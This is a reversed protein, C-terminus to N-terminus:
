FFEIEMQEFERSRFIFNRPTIENRFSKGVQAIGFPLKVRSTDLVSKFNAFIGQATEPRLYSKSSEDVVAGINTELMLNFQRPETLTGAQSASPGLVSSREEPSMAQYSIAPGPEPLEKQK